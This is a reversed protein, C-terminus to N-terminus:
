NRPLQTVSQIPNDIVNEVNINVFGNLSISITYNDAQLIDLSLNRFDARYADRVYYPMDSQSELLSFCKGDLLSCVEAPVPMQNVTDSRMIIRESSDIIGDPYFLDSFRDMIFHEDGVSVALYRGSNSFFRAYPIPGSHSTPLFLEPDQTFVDWLWLGQADSYALWRSDESWIGMGSISNENNQELLIDLTTSTITIPNEEKMLYKIWSLGGYITIRDDNWIAMHESDKSFKVGNGVYFANPMNRCPHRDLTPKSVYNSNPFILALECIQITNGDVQRTMLIGNESFEICHTQTCDVDEPHNWTWQFSSLTEHLIIKEDTTIGIFTDITEFKHVKESIFIIDSAEQIDVPLLYLSNDRTHILYPNFLSVPPFEVNSFLPPQPTANIRRLFEEETLNYTERNVSTDIFQDHESPFIIVHKISYTGDYQRAMVYYAEDTIPYKARSGCSGNYYGMSSANKHGKGYYFVRLSPFDPEGVLYESVRIVTLDSKTAGTGRVVITNDDLDNEIDMWTCGACGSCAVIITSINFFLLLFPLLYIVLRMKM